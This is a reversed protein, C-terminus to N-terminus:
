RFESTINRKMNDASKGSEELITLIRKRVDDGLGEIEAGLMDKLDDLESNAKGMMRNVKRKWKQATDALDERMDEGKEPALLLGAVVGVIAGAIFKSTSM